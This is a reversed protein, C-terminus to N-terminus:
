EAYLFSFILISENASAHLDNVGDQIDIPVIFL